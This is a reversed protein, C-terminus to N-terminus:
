IQDELEYPVPTESAALKAAGRFKTASAIDNELEAIRALGNLNRIEEDKRGLSKAEELGRLFISKAESRSSPGGMRLLVKGRIAYGRVTRTPDGDALRRQESADIMSLAEQYRGAFMLTIARAYLIGALMENKQRVDAIKDACQESLTLQNNAEPFNREITAIGALHRHAKAQWYPLQMADALKLGFAIKERAKALDNTAVLTWGLDDILAAIQAHPDSLRAAAGESAEGLTLRSRLLGEVWLHRSLAERLRLIRSYKGDAQLANVYSDLATMFRAEATANKTEGAQASAAQHLSQLQQKLTLLEPELETVIRRWSAGVLGVLWLLLVFIARSALSKSFTTDFWGKFEPVEAYLAVFGLLVAVFRAAHGLWSDSLIAQITRKL